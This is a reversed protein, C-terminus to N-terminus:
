GPLELQVNLKMLGIPFVFDDIPDVLRSIRSDADNHIRRSEGVGRDRDEISQIGELPRHNLHVNGIHVFTLLETVMGKDGLAGIAHDRAKAGLAVQKAQAAYRLQEVLRLHLGIPSDTQREAIPTPRIPLRCM